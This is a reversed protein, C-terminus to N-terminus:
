RVTVLGNIDFAFCMMWHELNVPLGADVFGRLKQDLLNACDEISTEYSLFASYAPAFYRRWEASRKNDRESFSNAM